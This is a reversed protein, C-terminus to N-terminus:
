TSQSLTPKQWSRLDQSIFDASFDSLAQALDANCAIVCVPVRRERLSRALKETGPGDNFSSVDLLVVVPRL